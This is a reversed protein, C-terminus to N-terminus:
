GQGHASFWVIRSEPPQERNCTVIEGLAALGVLAVSGRIERIERILIRCEKGPEVHHVKQIATMRAMRGDTTFIKAFCRSQSLNRRLEEGAQRSWIIKFAM